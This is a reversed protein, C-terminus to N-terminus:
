HKYNYKFEKANKRIYAGASNKGNVATEELRGFTDYGFMERIGTPQTVSTVGILPDHTYTTVKKDALAPQKRFVDLAALFASETSPNIGDENSAAVISSTSVSASLQEYTMGEVKAIPLTQYYGWIITVSVGDKLTYQIINGKEDYKDYRADTYSKNTDLADYSKEAIPLTLNGTQPSGAVTPYITEERSLMKTNNGITQKTTTELPIAIMNKDVLLQNAKEQAYLYNTEEVVNDPYTTVKSTLNNHISSTYDMQEKTTMAGSGLYKTLTKRLLKFPSAELSYLGWDFNDYITSTNNTINGIDSYSLGKLTTICNVAPIENMCKDPYNYFYNSEELKNFIGNRFEFLEEKYLQGYTHGKEDPPPFPIKSFAQSGIFKTFYQVTKGNPLGSSDKEIREVRKYVLNQGKLKSLPNSGQSYIVGYNGTSAVFPPTLITGSTKGDENMYNFEQIYSNSGDNTTIKKVRQGGVLLPATDSQKEEWQMGVSFFYPVELEDPNETHGNSQATLVHNGITLLSAVNSATGPNLWTGDIMVKYDCTTSYVTGPCNSIKVQADFRNGLIPADVTFPIEYKGNGKYHMPMRNLRIAKPIGDVAEPVMLNYNDPRASVNNEYTYETYGGTPYTVKTLLGTVAYQPNITLRKKETNSFMFDGNSERNYYGWIDQSASFRNPLTDSNYTFGYYNEYNGTQIDLRKVEKLRLRKNKYSNNSINAAYSPLVDSETYYDYYLQFQKILKGYNDYVKIFKLLDAKGNNSVLDDREAAYEFVVKEFPTTIEKITKFRETNKIVSVNNNTENGKSIYISSSDMYRLVANQGKSTIGTLYWSDNINPSSTLPYSSPPSKTIMATAVSKSSYQQDFNFETGDNLIVVWKNNGKIIKTDDKQQSIYTNNNYNYFFPISNGFYNINYSDTELDDGIYPQTVYQHNYLIDNRGSATSTNLYQQIINNSQGDIKDRVEQTLIGSNNISWGLGVSTAMQGVKIGSADYKLKIPLGLDGVKITHFLVEINPTGTSLNVSQKDFVGLANADINPSIVNPIMKPTGQAQLIGIMLLM